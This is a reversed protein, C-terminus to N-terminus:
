GADGGTGNAVATCSAGVASGTGAVGLGSLVPIGVNLCNNTAVGGTGAGGTNGDWALATGGLALSGAAAVTLVGAIISKRM